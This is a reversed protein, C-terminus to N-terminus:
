EPDCCNDVYYQEDTCVSLSLVYDSICYWYNNLDRIFRILININCTIVGAVAFFHCVVIRIHM